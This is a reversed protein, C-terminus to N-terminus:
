NFYDAIQVYDALTLVEPRAGPNIGLAELEDVKLHKKLTNRITKRRQSFADRM